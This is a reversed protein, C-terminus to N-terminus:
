KKGMVIGKMERGAKFVPSKRTPVKVAEGTKPNRAIRAKRQKIGFTGFGRLEIRNGADLNEISEKLKSIFTSILLAVEKKSLGFEKIESDEYVTEALDFKTVTNKSM